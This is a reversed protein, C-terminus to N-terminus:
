PWFDLSLIEESKIQDLVVECTKEINDLDDIIM